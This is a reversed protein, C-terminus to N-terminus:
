FSVSWDQSLLQQRGCNKKQEKADRTKKLNWQNGKVCTKRSQSFHRIATHTKNYEASTRQESDKSQQARQSPKTHKSKNNFLQIRGTIFLLKHELELIKRRWPAVASGFRHVRFVEGSVADRGTADVALRTVQEFVAVASHHVHWTHLCCM